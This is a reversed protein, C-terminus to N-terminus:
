AMRAWCSPTYFGDGYESFVFADTFDNFYESALNVMPEVVVIINSSSIVYPYILEGEWGEPTYWNDKFASRYDGGEHDYQFRFWGELGIALRRLTYPM